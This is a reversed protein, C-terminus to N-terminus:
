YTEWFSVRYGFVPFEDAPWEEYKRLWGHNQLATEHVPNAYVVRMKRPTKSYSQFLRDVVLGTLRANFPNYLYVITADSYDYEEASGEVANVEARRGRVKSVNDLTQTLLDGNLELAVVKRVAHRCVCCVVRGKGCGVDVFVDEPQLDLAAILRSIMPYPLPTYHVGEDTPPRVLGRTNIGLYFEYCLSNAQHWLIRLRRTM